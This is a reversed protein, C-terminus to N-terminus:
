GWGGLWPCLSQLVLSEVRLYDLLGRLSNQVNHCSWDFPLVLTTLDEGTSATQTTFSSELTGRRQTVAWLVLRGGPAGSAEQFFNAETKLRRDRTLPRAHTVVEM